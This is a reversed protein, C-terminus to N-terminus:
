RKQLSVEIWPFPVSVVFITSLNLHKGTLIVVAKLVHVIESLIVKSGTHFEACLM